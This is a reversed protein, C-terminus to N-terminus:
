IDGTCLFRGQGRVRELSHEENDEIEIYSKGCHTNYQNGKKEM